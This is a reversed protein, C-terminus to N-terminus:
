CSTSVMFSKPLQLAVPVVDGVRTPFFSLGDGEEADTGFLIQFKSRETASKVIEVTFGEGDESSTCKGNEFTLHLKNITKYADLHVFYSMSALDQDTMDFRDKLCKEVAQKDEASLSSM